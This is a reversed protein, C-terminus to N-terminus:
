TSVCTDLKKEKRRELKGELERTDLKGERTDLKGRSQERTDLKRGRNV